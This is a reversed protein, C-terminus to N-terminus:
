GVVCRPSNRTHNYSAVALYFEIASDFEHIPTFHM